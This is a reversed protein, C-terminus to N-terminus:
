NIWELEECKKSLDDLGLEKLFNATLCFSTLGNDRVFNRNELGKDEILKENSMYEKIIQRYDNNDGCVFPKSYAAFELLHNDPSDFFDFGIKCSSLFKRKDDLTITGLYQPISIPNPGVIAVRYPCSSLWLMAYSEAPKNLERNSFYVIDYAYQSDFKPPGIKATNATRKVTFARPTRQVTNEPTNSSLCWLSPEVVAQGLGFYVIKGVYKIFNLPLSEKPSIIIIDPKKEYIVDALTKQPQWIMCDVGVRMLTSLIPDAFKYVSQSCLIRM